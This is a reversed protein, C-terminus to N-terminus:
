VLNMRSLEIDSDLELNDMERKTNKKRKVNRLIGCFGYGPRFSGDAGVVPSEYLRLSLSSCVVSVSSGAMALGAFAPPLVLGKV